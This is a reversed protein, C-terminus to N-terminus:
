KLTYTVPQLEEPVEQLDLPNAKKEGRSVLIISLHSYSTAINNGHDIAVMNGYGYYYCARTVEGHFSAYITDGKNMKIDTGTHMRGSRPGFPSIVKGTCPFTFLEPLHKGKLAQHEYYFMDGPVLETEPAILLMSDFESLTVPRDFGPLILLSDTNIYQAHLTLLNFVFIPMIFIVRM